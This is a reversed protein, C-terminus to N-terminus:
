VEEGDKGDNEELLYERPRWYRQHVAQRSIGLRKGIKAFTVGEGRLRWILEDIQNPPREKVGYKAYGSRPDSAWKLAKAQKVPERFGVIDLFRQM